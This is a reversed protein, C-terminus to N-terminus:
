KCELTDRHEINQNVLITILSHLRQKISDHMGMSHMDRVIEVYQQLKTSGNMRNLFNM